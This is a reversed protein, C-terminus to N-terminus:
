AHGHGRKRAGAVDAIRKLEDLENVKTAMRKRVEKRRADFEAYSDHAIREAQKASVTGAGQLKPLENSTLFADLVAEWDTLRM